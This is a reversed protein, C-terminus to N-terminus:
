RFRRRVIAVTQALAMAPLALLAAIFAGFLLMPTVGNFVLLLWQAAVFLGGAMWANKNYAFGMLSALVLSLPYFVKWYHGTDWPETVGNWVQGVLCWYIIGAALAFAFSIPKHM